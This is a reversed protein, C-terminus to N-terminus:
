TAARVYVRQFASSRQGGSSAHAFAVCIRDADVVTRDNRVSWEHNPGDGEDADSRWRYGADERTNLYPEQPTAM